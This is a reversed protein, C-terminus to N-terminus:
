TELWLKVTALASRALSRQTVARLNENLALLDGIGDVFQNSHRDVEAASVKPHLEFQSGVVYVLNGARDHLPELYLLTTLSSGDKRLNDFTAQAPKAAALADRVTRRASTNDLDGQLFRCNRNLVEHQAYGTLASFASNSYILPLDTQGPDAITLAVSLPDFRKAVQELNLYPM